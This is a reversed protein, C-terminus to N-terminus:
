RLPTGFRNMVGRQRIDRRINSMARRGGGERRAEQLRTQLPVPIEGEEQIFPVRMQRSLFRGIREGARRRLVEDGIVDQLDFPLERTQEVLTRTQPDGVPPAVEPEPELFQGLM